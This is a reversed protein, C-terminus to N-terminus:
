SESGAVSAGKFGNSVVGLPKVSGGRTRMRNEHVFTVALEVGQRHKFLQALCRLTKPAGTRLCVEAHIFQKTWSALGFRWSM